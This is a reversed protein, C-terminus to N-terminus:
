VPQRMEVASSHFLHEKAKPVEGLTTETFTADADCSKGLNLTVGNCCWKLDNIGFTEDGCKCDKHEYICVDNCRWRESFVGKESPCGDLGQTEHPLVILLLLPLLFRGGGVACM